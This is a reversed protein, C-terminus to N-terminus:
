KNWGAQIPKNLRIQEELAIIKKKLILKEQQHATSELNLIQLMSDLRISLNAIQEKKSQAFIGLTYFLLLLFLKVQKKM